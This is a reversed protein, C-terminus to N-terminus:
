WAVFHLSNKRVKVKNFAYLQNWVIEWALIVWLGKLWHLELDKHKEWQSHEILKKIFFWIEMAQIGEQITAM